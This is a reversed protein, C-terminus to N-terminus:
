NRTTAGKESLYSLGDMLVTAVLFGGILNWIEFSEWLTAWVLALAIQYALRRM